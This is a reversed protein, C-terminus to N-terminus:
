NNISAGISPTRSEQEREFNLSWGNLTETSCRFIAYNRRDRNASTNSSITITKLCRDYQVSSLAGRDRLSREEKGGGQIDRTQCSQEEKTDTPSRDVHVASSQQGLQQENSKLILSTIATVGLAPGVRWSLTACTLRCLNVLQLTGRTCPRVFGGILLRLLSVVWWRFWLKSKLYTVFLRRDESGPSM